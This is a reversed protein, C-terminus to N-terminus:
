TDRGPLGNLEAAKAMGGFPTGHGKRLGVLDESTLAKIENDVQDKYQSSLQEKASAITIFVWIFGLGVNLTLIKM